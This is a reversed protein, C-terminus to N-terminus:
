MSTSVDLGTSATSEDYRIPRTLDRTFHSSRSPQHSSMAFPCSGSSSRACDQGRQAEGRAEEGDYDPRRGIAGYDRGNVPPQLAIEGDIGVGHGDAALGHLPLVDQKEGCVSRHRDGRGRVRHAQRAALDPGDFDGPQGFALQLKMGGQEASAFEVQVLHARDVEQGSQRVHPVLLGADHVPVGHGRGAGGFRDGARDEPDVPVAGRNVSDKPRQRNRARAELPVHEVAPAHVGLTVARVFDREGVAADQARPQNGSVVAAKHDLM